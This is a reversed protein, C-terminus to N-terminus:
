LTSLQINVISMPTQSFLVLDIAYYYAMVLQCALLYLIQLFTEDLASTKCKITPQLTFYLFFRLQLLAIIKLYGLAEVLYYDPVPFIIYALELCKLEIDALKSSTLM